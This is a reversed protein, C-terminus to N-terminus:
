LLFYVVTIPGSTSQLNLGGNISHHTAIMLSCRYLVGRELFTVFTPTDKDEDDESWEVFHTEPLTFSHLLINSCKMPGRLCLEGKVSIRSNESSPATQELAQLFEQQQRLATHLTAFSEEQM